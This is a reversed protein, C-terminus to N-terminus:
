LNDLVLKLDEDLQAIVDIIRGSDPLKFHLSYAHLFLRRLGKQQMFRNFENSGYKEDGAVEHGLHAAHVRIQHTKGTFIIAELLTADNYNKKPIFKTITTKGNESDVKVLREGSVLQNRLLPLTITRSGGQWKGKVLLLYKKNIKGARLMEHLNRLTSRKKAIILCGSTGKDLRHVLELNEGRLGKLNRSARITEIVGFNVGSGGHSAMGSPKNIILLDEDEYLVCKELLEMAKQTPSIRDSIIQFLPPIRIQDGGHLRYDQKVRKKNIRVEGNRLIKYIHTKPIKKLYTLLFNDVRQGTKEDSVTIVQVVRKKESQKNVFTKSKLTKKLHLDKIDYQM